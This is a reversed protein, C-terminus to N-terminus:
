QYQIPEGSETEEIAEKLLIDEYVSLVARLVKNLRVGPSINTDIDVDGYFKRGENTAYITFKYYQIAPNPQTDCIDIAIFVGSTKVLAVNTYDECTKLDLGVSDVTVFEVVRM